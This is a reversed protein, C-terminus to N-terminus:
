STTTRFGKILLWLALALENLALPAILLSHTTSETSLRGVFALLTAAVYPV